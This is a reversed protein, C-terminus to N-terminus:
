TAGTQSDETDSTLASPIQTEGVIEMAASVGESNEEDIIVGNETFAKIVIQPAPIGMIRNRIRKLLKQECHIVCPLDMKRITKKTPIIFRVFQTGGIVRMDEIRLNKKNRTDWEIIAIPGGRIVRIDVTTSMVLSPNSSTPQYAIAATLSKQAGWWILLLGIGIVILDSFFDDTAVNWVGRGHDVIWPAKSAAFEADGWKEISNIIPKFIM